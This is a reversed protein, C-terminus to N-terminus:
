ERWINEFDTLAPGPETDDRCGPEIRLFEMM